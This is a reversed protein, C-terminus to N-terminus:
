NLGIYLGLIACIFAILYFIIVVKTEKLGSLVFSYHIPTYKFIRKHFLKVWTLQLVVCFMEWVFVGGIFFLAIEKNLIVGLSAFLGGLGLSGSDGMFIKAPHFNFVLYGLLAGIICVLLLTINYERNFYAILAFAIIGFTSVGACLGDMGDTFNVANAEALYILIMLPIYFLGLDINIKTFPIVITTSIINRFFFYLISIFIFELILKFKPSLGENNKRIIITIDDLFGVLAYLFYSLIVFLVKSDNISRNNITFYIIVPILVFLLGGMIPTKAKRKYEELAYESVEQNLSHKVLLRIFLPMILVLLIFSSILGASLVVLFDM